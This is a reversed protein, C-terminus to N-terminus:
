QPHVLVAVTHLQTDIPNFVVHHWWAFVNVGSDCGDCCFSQNPSLVVGLKDSTSMYGVDIDASMVESYNGWSAKRVNLLSAIEKDTAMHAPPLVPARTRLDSRCPISLSCWAFSFFLTLIQSIGWITSKDQHQTMELPHGLKVLFIFHLITRTWIHDKHNKLNQRYWNNSTKVTTASQAVQKWLLLWDQPHIPMDLIGGVAILVTFYVSFPLFRTWLSFM